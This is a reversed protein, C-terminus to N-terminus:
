LSATVELAFDIAQELTASRAQELIAAFEAVGLAEQALATHMQQFPISFPPLPAGYVERLGEAAGFLKAARVFEGQVVETWALAELGHLIMFTDGLNRQFSLGERILADAMVYDKESRTVTIMGGLYMQVMAVRRSDGVERMLELSQEFFKRGGEADGAGGILFGLHFLGTGIGWKDNIQRYLEVGTTFHQYANFYDAMQLQALGITCHAWAEGGINGVAKFLAISVDGLEVSRQYEGHRLVLFSLSVLVRARLDASFDNAQALALELWRCGETVFGCKDWFWMLSAAIRVGVEKLAQDSFKLTWDLAVRINNHEDNLKKLWYTQETGNIQPESTEVLSLFFRAHNESYQAPNQAELKLKEQAYERITELMFYRLEPQEAETQEDVAVLSKNVLSGLLDMVEGSLLGDGACVTEAAEITWGGAFVSLRQLLAREKPSLLDYGWDILARLTRHRELVITSGTTLFNFKDNLRTAIQEVSLLKVRAAALELALPIGDLWKCIQVLAEVNRETVQFRPQVAIAREIFLKAADYNAVQGVLESKKKVTVNPVSLPPVRWMTEGTIGLAERSTALVSLRPCAQLLKGAVEACAQTLHECNDLVLLMKKPRLVESLTAFLELTTGERIGLELAIAQVVLRPDSIAALEIVWVGDEYEDLMLGAVQIALRTKGAGGVGSLTVLRSTGLMGKVKVIDIKRGVFSTLQGPLNHLQARVSKLAPFNGALGEIMLQYVREPQTIDRLRHEGLDKLSAGKPLYERILEASVGSLVVQGGHATAVLRAVKNVTSGYFDNNRRFVTGSHVAMRVGFNAVVGWDEAQLAKQAAEAALVAAPANQFAIYFADGVEKFIQGGHAIAISRLIGDHRSLCTEMEEHHQEWLRTSGEVDTFLFTLTETKRETSKAVPEIPAVIGNAHLGAFWETDFPPFLDFNGDESRVRWLEEAEKLEKGTTFLKISYYVEIIRKMNEATPYSISNEWNRMTKDSVGIEAALQQQTIRKKARGRYM